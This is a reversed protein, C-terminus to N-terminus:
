GADTAQGAAAAAARELMGRDPPCPGGVSVIEVGRDARVAHTLGIPVHIVDGAEFEQVVGSDHDCVTGKGALIFITDESEPHLHPTNEEGPQLRVYNMNASEAGVGPFVVLRADSSIMPVRLAPKDRHFKRVRAGERRPAVDTGFDPDPPSPGGVVELGEPGAVLAYAAGPEVHVMSGEDLELEEGVEPRAVGSGGVVYWAAEDPHTMTATAAGGGLRVLAMTRYEAGTHPGVVVFAEGGGEGLDVPQGAAASLVEIGGSM